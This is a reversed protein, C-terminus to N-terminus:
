GNYIIRYGTIPSAYRLRMIYEHCHLPGHAIPLPFFAHFHRVDCAKKYSGKGVKRALIANGTFEVWEVM